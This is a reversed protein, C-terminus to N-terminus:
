QKEGLTYGVGHVNKIFYSGLKSRLHHIHVEITNSSVDDNWGYLKEHLTERSLVRGKNTLFTELLILGKASLIITKDGKHITRKQLDLTIDEHKLCIQAEGAARRQWVRLRAILEALAFPKPLYDDAGLSLGEVRDNITTRATLIIVPITINTKRWHQLIELGDMNPLTLDLIAVDHKGEELATSAIKGDQLWDVTFGESELGVLIADGINIDDEVLLIRM